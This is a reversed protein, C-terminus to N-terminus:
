DENLIEKIRQQNQKMERLTQNMVSQKLIKDVTEDQSLLEDDETIEGDKIHTTVENQVKASRSIEQAVAEFDNMSNHVQLVAHRNIMEVRNM